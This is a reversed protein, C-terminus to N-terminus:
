RPRSSVPADGAQGLLRTLVNSDGSCHVYWAQDAARWVALDAQGDGDYDGPVAQDFYPAYNAGWEMVRASNRASQWIYWTSGRWVAIDTKGDGDYDAAVPVDTGLGWAKAMIQGDSSRKVYWTGTARRFVAVDTKGDGDYDGPVAVDDYPAYAAGWAVTDIMGDSSRVIYWNSDAGRWVAIDTKGDGDYDGPVPVDTPLGWAKALVGGDSSRGSKLIYWTGNSPRFVALDTQGDGDYDGLLAVDGATGWRATVTQRSGSKFIRWSGDKASWLAPDSQGDGDYDAQQALATARGLVADITLTYARAVPCLNFNTVQVTFSFRGAATPAGSLLGSNYNLSLGAPLAGATLIASYGYGGADNVPASSFTQQYPAGLAGNPLTAPNLTLTPCVVPLTYARTLSCTGAQARLTFSYTGLTNCTGSLVGTQANLTYGPPLQGTLLTYSYPGAPMVTLTQLYALGAQGPPLTDPTMSLTGCAVTIVYTRSSACGGQGTAKLTFVFTGSATPTGTLAGGSSLSLGAPLAGSAVSFTYPATGGTASITQNYATGVTGGPLAAPNLTIPACTGTILLNYSQTQTCSVLGSAFGTATIAFAYNGPASPTGTIAGTAGNLSLGPPLMNTTVAYSYNGGSPSATVMQNYPTGQVGNPLTAPTLTITPCGIVLLLPQPPSGCQNGFGTATITFNYPGATLVTGSLLGGPTLTLGAPLMGGTVAFTYNGGAPTATLQHSYFQGATGAPPAAVTIAPCTVSVMYTLMGPCNMADNATITFSFNNNVTPTGSLLGGPTLTLGTPLTGSTHAFTYPGTGGTAGLQQSYFVGTVPNPLTPPTLTLAPCGIAIMKQGNSACENVGFVQVSLTVTGSPGATFTIAPTGQGNTITGNVISWFYGSPMGADPVSAMNGTSNPTVTMPATIVASPNPVVTLVIDDTATGCSPSTVVLTLTVTGAGNVSVAPTLTNANMLSAMATGTTGTVSWQPTGNAATGILNFVTPQPNAQCRTQDFGANATPNPNVTLVVTDMGTGCTQTSATLLLTVTGTGAVNVNTAASAPSLITAMATGTTGQVMWSVAAGSTVIGNLAFVTPGGSTQCLTQDAGADATAGATVTLVVTDNATGCSQSTVALNLTITGTGTVNVTPTLTNGNVIMATAGGTMGTVSWQPTGNTATGVPNFVTPGQMPQCDALDAGANAAPATGLTLQVPAIFDGLDATPAQSSKTKMMVTSIGICPNLGQILATVDLAAEAFAFQQYSAAGFAGFSVPTAGTVNSASFTTGAPPTITHYTFGIPVGGDAEWRQVSFNPQAGGNTLELTLLLDGVTRGANPGASTFTGNANATLTNQLFEFDLYSNGNTSLRDSAVMVWLHGNADNSVHLLGHNMDLKAGAKSTTWQWTNPNDPYKLGGRFIDDAQSDYLDVLHFTKAADVPAGAATLVGVGTGALGPTWDSTNATPTNARLDGEIEFGGPDGNAVVGTVFLPLAATAARKLRAAPRVPETARWGPSAARTGRQAQWLAVVCALCVLALVAGSRFHRSPFSPSNM